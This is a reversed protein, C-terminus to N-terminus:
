APEKPNFIDELALRADEAAAAALLVAALAEAPSDHASLIEADADGTGILAVRFATSRGPMIRLALGPAIASDAAQPTM